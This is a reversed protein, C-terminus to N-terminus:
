AFCARLCCNDYCAVTITITFSAGPALQIQYSAHSKSIENPVKDFAIHTSRAEADLGMYRLIIASKEVEPAMSDGRERRSM